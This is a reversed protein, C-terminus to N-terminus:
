LRRYFPRRIGMRRGLIWLWRMLDLAVAELMRAHVMPDLLVRGNGLDIPKDTYAVGQLDDPLFQERAIDDFADLVRPNIVGNTRIQCEVMSHRAQQFGNM